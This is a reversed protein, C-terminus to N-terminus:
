PHLVLQEVQNALYYFDAHYNKLKHQIKKHQKPTLTKHLDILLQYSLEQNHTIKQQADTSWDRSDNIILQRLATRREDSELEHRQLFLQTADKSWDTQRQLSLEAISELKLSWEKILEKQTETLSGVWRKAGKTFRKQRLKERAQPEKSLFPDTYQAQTDALSALFEQWQDDSLSIFLRDIDVILYDLSNLWHQHIESTTAALQQATIPKQVDLSLQSVFDAYQPLQTQQHWHHFEDLQTELQQRQTKDLSVYDRITWSLWWDMFPYTMKLSCGGLTLCLLLLAWLRYSTSTGQGHSNM